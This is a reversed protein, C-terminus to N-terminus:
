KAEFAYVTKNFPFILLDGSNYVIDYEKYFTSILLSPNGLHLYGLYQGNEPLVAYIIKTDTGRVYLIDDIMVPKGYFQDNTQSKWVERGDKEDFAILGYNTNVILMNNFVVLNYISRNEILSDTKWVTSLKQIDFAKISGSNASTEEYYYLINTDLLGTRTIKAMKWIETGTAIERASISETTTVYVLETTPDYSITVNARHVVLDWVMKGTWMNYVELNWSPFRRVFIYDSHVAEILESEEQLALDVKSVLKGTKDIVDIQSKEAVILYGESIFLPSGVNLPFDLDWLLHGTKADVASVGNEKGIAVWGESVALGYVSSDSVFSWREVLPFEDNVIVQNAQVLNCSVIILALLSTFLTKQKM